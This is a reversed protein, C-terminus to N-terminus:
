KYPNPVFTCMTSPGSDNAFIWGGPVRWVEWIDLKIRDGLNMKFLKHEEM